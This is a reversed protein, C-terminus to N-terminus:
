PQARVVKVDDGEVFLELAFKVPDANAATVEYSLKWREDPEILITNNTSNKTNLTTIFQTGANKWGCTIEYDQVDTPNIQPPMSDAVSGVSFVPYPYDASWRADKPAPNGSQLKM